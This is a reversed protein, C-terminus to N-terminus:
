ANNWSTPPQSPSVNPARAVRPTQPSITQAAVAVVPATPPSAENNAARSASPIPSPAAKGVAVRAMAIQVGSALQPKACPM